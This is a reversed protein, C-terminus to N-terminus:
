KKSSEILHNVLKLQMQLEEGSSGLADTSYKVSKTAKPADKPSLSKIEDKVSDVKKLEEQVEKIKEGITKVMENLSEPQSTHKKIDVDKSEKSEKLEKRFDKLVENNAKTTKLLATSASALSNLSALETDAPQGKKDLDELKKTRNVTKKDNLEKKLEERVAMLEEASKQAFTTIVVACM